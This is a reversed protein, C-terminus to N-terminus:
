LLSDTGPELVAVMLNPEFPWSKDRWSKLFFAALGLVLVVIAYLMYVWGGPQLSPSVFVGIWGVLALLAPLPYLWMRFPRPADPCRRRWLLLGIIQAIFMPIVRVTVLANIVAQFPFFSAMVCLGGVLLLSRHPFNRTPHLKDFWRFFVGDRAAAYPIRSYGLMSAYTSSFATFEVMITFIMSAWPGVLRDMYVSGIADHALTHPQMMERWPINGTFAISILLDILLVGGISYIVSQPIVKEPRKVEAGLYCIDYYGFFNMMVMLTGNGLGILFPLGLRFAGPPFDFLWQIHLHGFGVALVWVSTALMLGWLVFMVIAVERIKRYLFVICIASVAVAFWRMGWPHQGLSKWLFTCYLAMGISSTAIELTGSFLFQWVFMWAMLRGWRRAGFCERLFTYSGGSAPIAAGLEAFVLGDAIALVAGLFWCILAQPGGMVGILLPVTLFPGTGVMNSMNISLGNWLGLHRLLVPAGPHHAAKETEPLSM